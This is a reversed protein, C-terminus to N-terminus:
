QYIDIGKESLITMVKNFSLEIMGGCVDIMEIPDEKKLDRCETSGFESEFWDTFEAVMKIGDVRSDENDEVYISILSIGGLLVGCTKGSYLGDGFGFMAKVLEDNEKNKM